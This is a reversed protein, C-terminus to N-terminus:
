RVLRQRLDAAVYLGPILHHIVRVQFAIKIRNWVALEQRANAHPNHVPRDQLQDPHPQFRRYHLPTPSRTATLPAPRLLPRRLAPDRRGSRLLYSRSQGPPETDALPSAIFISLVPKVNTM